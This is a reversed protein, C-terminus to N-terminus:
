VDQKSAILIPAYIQNRQRYIKGFATQVNNASFLNATNQLIRLNKYNSVRYNTEQANKGDNKVKEM